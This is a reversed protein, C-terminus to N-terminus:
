KYTGSFIHGTRIRANGGIKAYGYLRADGFVGAYGFVKAYDYIRAHDGVLANGFVRANLDVHVTPAVYATDAVWGGLTGNPNIHRHAPVRGNGDGFDFTSKPTTAHENDPIGEIFARLTDLTLVEQKTPTSM